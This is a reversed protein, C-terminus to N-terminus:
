AWPSETADVARLGSTKLSASLKDVSGTSTGALTYLLKMADDYRQRPELNKNDGFQQMAKYRAIDCVASVAAAPVQWAAVVAGEADLEDAGALIEKALAYADALIASLSLGTSELRACEKEGFRAVLDDRTLM